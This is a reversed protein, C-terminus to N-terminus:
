GFLMRFLSSESSDAMTGTNVKPPEPVEPREVLTTESVLGCTHTFGANVENGVFEEHWTYYGPEDVVIGPTVFDGNGTVTVKVSGYPDLSCDIDDMSAFPGYLNAQATEKFDGVIGSVTLTDTIESGTEVVADSTQTVLEPQSQVLTTEDSLGCPTDVPVNLEDGVFSETWVYLGPEEVVVGPTVYEGDGAVPFTVSAFPDGICDMDDRSPYPGWLDATVEHEYTGATDTVWVTDTIEAGPTVVFDSTLTTVSPRAKVTTTEEAIGCETVVGEVYRTEPLEIVWTYVGVEGVEVGPTQVTGNGTVNFDVSAYPEVTCDAADLSEFPGYLHATATVDYAPADDANVAPVGPVGPTVVVAECDAQNSTAWFAKAADGTSGDTGNVQDTAAYAVSSPSYGDIDSPDFCGPTGVGDADALWSANVAPVAPVAPELVIDGCAANDPNAVPSGTAPDVCPLEIGDVTINDFIEDGVGVEAESTTTEISPVAREAGVFSTESTVGCAHTSATYDGVAPVSAVWTYYGGVTVDLAPTTHWGSGSIRVTVRGVEEEPRCDAATPPTPYPGYLVATATNRYDSEANSVRITDAISAPSGGTLELSKASTRTTIAVRPAVFSLNTSASTSTPTTEVLMRQFGSKAPTRYNMANSALNDVSATVRRVPKTSKFTVKAVGKSNTTASKTSGDYKFVVKKGPIGKGSTKSTLTSKATFKKGGVISNPSASLVQKYPGAYAKSDALMENVLARVATGHGTGNVRSNFASKGVGYQSGKSLIAYISADIATAVNPRSWQGKYEHLIWAVRAVDRNDRKKGTVSDTWTKTSKVGSYTTGRPWTRHPDACFAVKGSVRYSGIWSSAASAPLKYGVAIDNGGNALAPTPTAVLLGASAAVLGSMLLAFTRSARKFNKM